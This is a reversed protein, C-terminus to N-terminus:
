AAPRKLFTRQHGKINSAPEKNLVPISVLAPTDSGKSLSACSWTRGSSRPPRRCEFPTKVQEKQREEPSPTPASQQSLHSSEPIFTQYRLGTTRLGPAGGLPACHFPLPTLSNRIKNINYNKLIVFLLFQLISLHLSIYM